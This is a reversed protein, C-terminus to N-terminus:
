GAADGRSQRLLQGALHDRSSPRQRTVPRRAAQRVHDQGLFIARRRFRLGYLTWFLFVLLFGFVNVPSLSSPGKSRWEVCFQASVSVWAVGSILTGAHEWWAESDRQMNCEVSGWVSGCFATFALGACVPPKYAAGYYSRDRTPCGGPTVPVSRRGCHRIKSCFPRSHDRDDWPHCASHRPLPCFRPQAAPM